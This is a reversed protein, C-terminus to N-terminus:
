GAPCPKRLIALCIPTYKTARGGSRRARRTGYYPCEMYLRDVLRRLMPTRGDVPRPEYYLSSRGAGALECKRSLPPTGDERILRM